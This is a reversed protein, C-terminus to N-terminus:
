SEVEVLERCSVVVRVGCSGEVVVFGGGLEVVVVGVRRSGEFRVSQGVEFSQVGM